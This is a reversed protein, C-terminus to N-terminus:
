RGLAKDAELVENLKNLVLDRIEELREPTKAEFRVVLVPQTNSARVLGWGDDFLVRVGDVDIIPYREKFYNKLKEVVGFKVSDPCDIRTEPTSHFVPVDALLESTKKGSAAVLRVMRCSAYIADDYGYYEDAFFFHGSMEGALPANEAKMKEKILSHGTRWMIPNGGKEKVDDVLAQSCKVEFIISAGPRKRLVERSFLILLQDGWLLQGTDDVVGLRDADGDYAVGLDAGEERVRAILAAMNEPVTPDPHHHPFTGDLETFQEIVDAGLDRLIDPAFPGGMGNGADVVVKLRRPFPGIRGRVDQAYRAALDTRTVSGQGSAFEGKEILRRVKQIQEGYITARGVALKFGNFEPPNHSGTIMIGGGVDLHFLAFYLLPTPVEGIDIVDLGTSNVGRAIAEAFSESSPRMDYGLAVRRYGLGAMYTGYGRGLEEVVAESLDTGVLGRIDYERFIQPNVTVTM